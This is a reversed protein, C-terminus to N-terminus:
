PNADRRARFAGSGGIASAGRAPCAELMSAIAFPVRRGIARRRMRSQGSPLPPPDHTRVEDQGASLRAIEKAGDGAIFIPGEGWPELALDLAREGRGTKTLCEM